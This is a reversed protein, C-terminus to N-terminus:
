LLVSVTRRSASKYRCTQHLPTAPHFVLVFPDVGPLVGGAHGPGDAGGLDYFIATPFFWCHIVSNSCALQKQWSPWGTSRHHM